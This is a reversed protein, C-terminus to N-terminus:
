ALGTIIGFRNPIIVRYVFGNGWGCWEWTRARVCACVVPNINKQQWLHWLGIKWQGLFPALFLRWVVCELFLHRDCYWFHEKCGFLASMRLLKDFVTHCKHCCFTFVEQLARIRARTLTRNKSRSKKKASVVKRKECCGDGFM